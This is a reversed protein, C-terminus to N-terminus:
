VFRVSVDNLFLLGKDTLRLHGGEFRLLLNEKLEKIADPFAEEIGIGFREEFDKLRVGETMRLGLFVAEGMAKEKTLIEEEVFATGKEDILGLYEKLDKTNARRIGWCGEGKERLPLSPPLYSHASVGLGLYEGGKWYIQNHRSRFGPLCYNSVEYHEYGAKGLIDRAMLFMEVQEEESPLILAGKEQQCYFPTGEEITLNYASIHEPRLSVAEELDKAWDPLSEGPISHILDIGVNDFGAKRSSEYAKLGDGRDHIRGLVTLLRDNFSQIGISLRNVGADRYGRLKELDVTGPNAELTVEPGLDGWGGKVLPPRSPIIRFNKSIASLITEIGKPSLLSPTGGGFYVTEVEGDSSEGRRAEMEKVVANIYEEEPTIEPTFSTFDCYPCKRICFPIHIYIGFSM